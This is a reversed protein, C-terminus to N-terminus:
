EKVAEAPEDDFWMSVMIQSEGHLDRTVSYGTVYKIDIGVKAFFKAVQEDTKSKAWSVHIKPM